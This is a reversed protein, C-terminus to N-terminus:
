SICYSQFTNTKAIYSMSGPYSGGVQMHIYYASAPSVYESSTWYVAQTFGAPVGNDNAIYLAKMQELTALRKGIGACYANANDWTALAGPTPDFTGAGSSNVSLNTGAISASAAWRTGDLTYCAAKGGANVIANIMKEVQGGANCLTSYNGNNSYHLEAEAVMSRLNSKVSAVRGKARASNLSALIVGALIGIVAIVVLLEILTFGGSLSIRNFTKKM